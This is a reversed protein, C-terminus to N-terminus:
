AARSKIKSLYSLKLLEYIRDRDVDLRDVGHFVATMTPMRDKVRTSYVSETGVEAIFEPVLGRPDRVEIRCATEERLVTVERDLTRLENGFRTMAPEVETRIWEATGELIRRDSDAKTRADVARQTELRKVEDLWSAIAM